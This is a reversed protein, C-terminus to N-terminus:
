KGTLRVLDAESAVRGFGPWWPDRALEELLTIARTTDGHTLIWNAVGYGVTERRYPAHPGPNLIEEETMLGKYFLLDHYYAVNEEVDLDTPIEQLLKVVEEEQGARLAARVAWETMAVRSEPDDGNRSCSRFDDGSAARAVPDQALGLCRRYEASADQFRGSLYYALGLHYAVDWNLPALSRARELDAVAADFERLSIHRHGRYRYPRWDEPALEIARTYLEMAQRYQWFNRRIRGAAIIREVNGPDEALAADAEAIAGTTDEMQFLPDGFLSYTQPQVGGRSDEGPRSDPDAGELPPAGADGPDAESGERDSPGCAWATVLLFVLLTVIHFGPRPFNPM